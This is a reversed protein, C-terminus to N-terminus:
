PPPINTSSVLGYSNAVVVWVLRITVPLEVDVKTPPIEVKNAEATPLVAVVVIRPSLLVEVKAQPILKFPPHKAMFPVQTPLTEPECVGQVDLILPAPKLRLLTM